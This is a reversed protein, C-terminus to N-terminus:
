KLKSFLNKTNSFFAPFGATQCASSRSEDKEKRVIKIYNLAAYLFLIGAAINLSVRMMEAGKTQSGALMIAEAGLAIAVVILYVPLVKKGKYLPRRIGFVTYVFSLMMMIPFETQIEFYDIQYINGRIVKGENLWSTFLSINEWEVTDDWWNVEKRGHAM